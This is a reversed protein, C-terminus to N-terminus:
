LYKELLPIIFITVKQTNSYSIPMAKVVKLSLKDIAMNHAYIYNICQRMM